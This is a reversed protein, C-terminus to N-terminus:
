IPRPMPASGRHGGRVPTQQKTLGHPTANAAKEFSRIPGIRGIGAIRSSWDPPVRVPFPPFISALVELGSEPSNETQYNIYTPGHGRAPQNKVCGAAHSSAPFNKRDTRMARSRRLQIPWFELTEGLGRGIQRSGTEPPLSMSLQM